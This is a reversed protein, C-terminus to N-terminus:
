RRSKPQAQDAAARVHETLVMVVLANVSLGEQEAVLRLAADLEPPLEINRRRMIRGVPRSM